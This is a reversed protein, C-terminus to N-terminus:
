KLVTFNWSVFLSRATIPLAFFNPLRSREECRGHYRFIEVSVFDPIGKRTDCIQPFIITYLTASIVCYKVGRFNVNVSVLAVYISAFNLFETLKM